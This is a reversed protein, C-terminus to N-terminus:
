RLSLRRTSAMRSPERELHSPPRIDLRIPRARAATPGHDQAEGAWVIAHGHLAPVVALVVCELDHDESLAADDLESSRGNRRSASEEAGQGGSHAQDPQAM